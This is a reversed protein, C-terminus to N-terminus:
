GSLATRSANGWYWEIVAEQRREALWEEFLIKQITRHTPADLRAPVVSLVRVIVYSEGMHMPGLVEGPAAAFIAPALEPAVDKRYAAAFLESSSHGSPPAALFARQAAASFDVEGKYIQDYSQHASAEDALNLRAMYVIDFDTWHAEFYAEVRGATIRDRLRVIRAEDAVLRELEQHTMGHRKMWRYTEEATYLKKARRFADMACQLEADSLELPDKDLAEQLLCTNVLRDVLRAEDWIFDLCAIAQDVPLQTTNVRLLTQEDARHTGRMPWPLARDPCFSLSVTGREDLRLLLDYHVSHDYAEQEWLLDMRTDPYRQQLLRLRTKAEQPQINDRTLILLYELTETLAQQLTDNM